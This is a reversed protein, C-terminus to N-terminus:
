THSVKKLGDELDTDSEDDDANQKEQKQRKARNQTKRINKLKKHTIEDDGPVLKIIEEATFKKCLKKLIMGIAIRGHRKTDPVMSSLSRVITTLHNAVLPTPLVKVFVTVFALSAEVEQRNKGVLFVLVQELIFQLTAVTLNGTFHKVVATITLITNTILVTDGGFGVM